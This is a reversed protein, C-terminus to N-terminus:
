SFTENYETGIYTKVSNIKTYKKNKSNDLGIRSNKSRVSWRINQWVSRLSTLLVRGFSIRLNFWNYYKWCHKRGIILHHYWVSICLMLIQNMTINIRYFLNSSLVIMIFENCESWNFSFGNLLYCFFSYYCCDFIPLGISHSDVLCHSFVFVIPLYTLNLIYHLHDSDIIFRSCCFIFLFYRKGQVGKNIASLVDSKINKWKSKQNKDSEKM